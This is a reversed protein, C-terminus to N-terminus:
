SKPRGFCQVWLIQHGKANIGVAVGSGVDSFLGSLIHERHVASAMWDEVVKDITEQGQALNEGVFQPQYGADKSRELVTSGNLGDHSYYAHDLMDQAHAQAAADLRSNPKLPARHRSSRERNVRELLQRRVRSLDAFELQKAALHDKWDLGFLFVYLPTEGRHAFGVGLDKLEARAIERALPGNEELAEALALDPDGDAQLFIESLYRADYGAEAVPRAVDAVSAKKPDRDPAALEEARAQAIRSLTPSLSLPARGTRAANIQSLLPARKQDTDDAKGTLLLLGVGLCRLTRGPM